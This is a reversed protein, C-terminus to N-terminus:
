NVLGSDADGQSTGSVQTESTSAVAALRRLEREIESEIHHDIEIKDHQGLYQKGLWIQMTPNGDLATKIQARRLSM